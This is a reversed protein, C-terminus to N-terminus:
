ILAGFWGPLPQSGGGFLYHGFLCRTMKLPAERILFVYLYSVKLPPPPPPPDVRVTLRATLHM